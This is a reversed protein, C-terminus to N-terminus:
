KYETIIENILMEYEAETMEEEADIVPATEIEAKAMVHKSKPVYKKKPVPEYNAYLMILFAACLFGVFMGSFFTTVM